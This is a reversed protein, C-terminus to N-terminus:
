IIREIAGFDNVEVNLVLGNRESGPCVNDNDISEAPCAYGDELEDPEHILTQSILLPALEGPPMLLNCVPCQVSQMKM